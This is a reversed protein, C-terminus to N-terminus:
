LLLRTELRDFFNLWDPIPQNANDQGDGSGNGNDSNGGNDGNNPTIGGGDPNGSSGDWVGNGSGPSLTKAPDIPYQSVDPNHLNCYYSPAEYAIDAVNPNAPYPRKVM